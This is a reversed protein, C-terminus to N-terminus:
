VGQLQSAAPRSLSRALIPTATPAKSPTRSRNSRNASVCRPPTASPRRPLFAAHCPHLPVSLTLGHRADLRATHQGALDAGGGSGYPAAGHASGFIPVAFLRGPLFDAQCSPTNCSNELGACLAPHTPPAVSQPLDVDASIVTDDADSAASGDCRRPSGLRTSARPPGM